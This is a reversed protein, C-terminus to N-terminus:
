GIYDKDQLGSIPPLDGKEKITGTFFCYFINKTSVPRM